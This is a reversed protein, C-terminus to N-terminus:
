LVLPLRESLVIEAPTVNCRYAYVEVGHQHALRLAKGFAPDAADNPAFASADQRQVVFVVSGRWGQGVARALVDVHRRGRSTPADPFLAVGNEALTVSKVELYCRRRGNRLLLDLRSDELVQERLVEEYGAFEPLRASVLAEYVLTSPLRADASVLAYGLDVLSLDYLTKRGPHPGVPTLLVPRGAQFLERLRGSNAVYVLTEQGQIRVLAAFRNLRSIFTGAVLHPHLKVALLYYVMGASFYANM